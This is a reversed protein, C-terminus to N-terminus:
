SQKFIIERSVVFSMVYLVTEVIFKAAIPATHFKLVIFNIFVYGVIGFIIVFFIYKPFAYIDPDTSKFVANKNMTYHFCISFIRGIIQAFLISPYFIYAIAFIGNDIIAAIISTSFFRIFVFYIRMSDLVPNFHSSKNEDIYVTQIAVEKISINNERAKLLMDLEFDYGTTKLKLLKRYFQKPIGRLGTQTDRLNLGGVLHMVRRTLLNGFRSRFPVDKLFERSGLILHHPNEILQSAIKTVDEVLHQGDADLTVCGVADSYFCAIHNLGTKLAAGKGMNIYHRLTEVGEMDELANFIAEYESDSGDNVVVVKQFLDSRILELVINVVSPGPKYAPILAVPKSNVIRDNNPIM